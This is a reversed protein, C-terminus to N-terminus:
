PKPFKKRKIFTVEITTEKSPNPRDAVTIHPFREAFRKRLSEIVEAYYLPMPDTSGEPKPLEPKQSM